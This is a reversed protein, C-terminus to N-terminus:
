LERSEATTLIATGLGALELTGEFRTNTLLNFKYPGTDLEIPKKNHNLVFLFSQRPGDRRILEVGEPTAFEARIGNDECIQTLLQSMFSQDPQTGLYYGWGQGFRNRTVAPKGACFDDENKGDAKYIAVPEAGELEIVDSWLRCDYVQGRKGNSGMEIRAVRDPPYPVFEDVRMGLLKRFPAPYGNLWIQDNQDVIGIFFSIVVSGGAAAFEEL